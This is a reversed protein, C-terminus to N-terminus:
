HTIMKWIANCTDFESTEKYNLEFKEVAKKEKDVIDTIPNTTFNFIASLLFISSYFYSYVHSLICGSIKAQENLDPIINTVSTYMSIEMRTKM